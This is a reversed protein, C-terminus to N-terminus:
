LARQAFSSREQARGDANGCPRDVPSSVVIVNFALTVAIANPTAATNTEPDNAVRANAAGALTKFDTSV